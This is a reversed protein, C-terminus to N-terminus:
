LGYRPEHEIDRLLKEAAERPFMHTKAQGNQVYHVHIMTEDMRYTLQQIDVGHEQLIGAFFDATEHAAVDDPRHDSVLKIQLWNFLDDALKM